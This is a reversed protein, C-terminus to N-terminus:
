GVYMSISQVAASLRVAVIRSCLYCTALGSGLNLYMLPGLFRSSYLLSRYSHMLFESASCSIAFRSFCACLTLNCSSLLRTFSSFEGFSQTSHIRRASPSPHCFEIVPSRLVKAGGSGSASMCRSSIVELNLHSSSAHKLAM